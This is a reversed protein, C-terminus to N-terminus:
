DDVELELECGTDEFVFRFKDSAHVAIPSGGGIVIRQGSGLGWPCTNALWVLEELPSTASRAAVSCNLMPAPVIDAGNLTVSVQPPAHLRLATVTAM